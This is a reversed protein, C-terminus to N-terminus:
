LMCVFMCMRSNSRVLLELGGVACEYRLGKAMGHWVVCQVSVGGQALVVHSADDVTRNKLARV